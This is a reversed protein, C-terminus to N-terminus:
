KKFHCAWIGGVELVAKEQVEWLGYLRIISKLKM